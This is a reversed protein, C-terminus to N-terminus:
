SNGSAVETSEGLQTDLGRHFQELLEGRGYGGVLNGLAKKVAGKRTLAEAFILYVSSGPGDKGKSLGFYKGAADERSFTTAYGYTNEKLHVDLLIFQWRTADSRELRSVRQQLKPPFEVHNVRLVVYWKM